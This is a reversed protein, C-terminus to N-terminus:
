ARSFIVAGLQGGFGYSLSMVHDLKEEVGGKPVHRLHCEPDPDQLNRTDPVRGKELVMAALVAEVSGAAGLLHGTAGKTSSVWPGDEGFVRKLARSEVLDNLRTGTGHANIYGIDSPQLGARDLARLVLPIITDGKPEMELMGHADAGLAWGSLRALVKAKRKRATRERELVLMAAGEGMRFGDRARDFPAPGEDRRSLVGMNQFGAYILPHISSETTGTLVADCDGDELLRAGMAISGIGTSCASTVSLSPGAFGFRERLLKGSAHPFFDSLFDWEPPPDGAAALLSLVGGKSSSFTTAIRGPAVKYLGAMKWAEESCVYALKLSRDRSLLKDPTWGEIAYAAKPEEFADWEGGKLRRYPKEESWLGEWTRQSDPGLPTVAGWGTVVIPEPM